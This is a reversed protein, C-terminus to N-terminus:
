VDGGDIAAVVVRAVRHGPDSEGQRHHRDRRPQQAGPLPRRTRASVFAGGRGVGKRPVKPPTLRARSPLVPGLEGPFTWSGGGRQQAASRTAGFPTLAATPASPTVATPLGWVTKTVPAVPNMPVASTASNTRQPFRTRASVRAALLRSPRARSCMESTLPSMRSRVESSRPMAPHERTMWRAPYARLQARSALDNKACLTSPVRFTSVAARAAPVSLTTTVEVTTVKPGVRGPTTPSSVVGRLVVPKKVSYSSLLVTASRSASRNAASPRGTTM